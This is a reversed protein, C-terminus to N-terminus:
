SVKKCHLGLSCNVRTLPGIQGMNSIKLSKICSRTVQLYLFLDPLFLRNTSFTSIDNVGMM